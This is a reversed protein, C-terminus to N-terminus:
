QYGGEKERDEAADRQAQVMQNKEAQEDQDEDPGDIPQNIEDKEMIVGKRAGVVVVRCREM